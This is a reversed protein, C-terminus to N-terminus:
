GMFGFTKLFYLSDNIIEFWSPKLASVNFSSLGYFDVSGTFIIKLMQMIICDVNFLSKSDSHYNYPKLNPTWHSAKKVNKQVAQRPRPRTRDFVCCTNSM